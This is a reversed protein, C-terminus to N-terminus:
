CVVRTEKEGERLPRDPRLRNWRELVAEATLRYYPLNYSSDEYAEWRDWGGDNVTPRGVELLCFQVMRVFAEDPMMGWPNTASGYNTPGPLPVGLAVLTRREARWVCIWRGVSQTRGGAWREVTTHPVVLYYAGNGTGQSDYMIYSPTLTTIEAVSKITSM